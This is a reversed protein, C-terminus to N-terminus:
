WSNALSEYAIGERIGYLSVIIEDAGTQALLVDFLELAPVVVDARDPAMGALAIREAVTWSVLRNALARYEAAGIVDGHRLERGDAARLRALDRLAGSIGVLQQGCGAMLWSAVPALGAVLAERLEALEGPGPPDGLPRREVMRVAGLPLSDWRVLRGEAAAVLQVSGGGVEVILGCGLGLSRTVALYAYFAEEAATLVRLRLGSATKVQRLFEDQNAAERVASTTVAMPELGLERSLTALEALAAVARAAPGSGLRGGGRDLGEILRVPRREWHSLLLSEDAQHEFVALRVANSGLDIVAVRRM